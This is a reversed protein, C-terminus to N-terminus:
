KHALRDLSFGKEIAFKPNDTLLRHCLSDVALFYEKECLLNGIRSKKHHIETSAQRGCVECMPHAALYEKRVKAYERLRSSMKKSIKRLPNRKM